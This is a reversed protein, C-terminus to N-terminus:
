VRRREFRGSRLLDRFDSQSLVTHLQGKRWVGWTVFQLHSHRNEDTERATRNKTTLKKKWVNHSSTLYFRTYFNIVRCYTLRVSRPKIRSKPCIALTYKHNITMNECATENNILRTQTDRISTIMNSFLFRAFHLHEDVFIQQLFSNVAALALQWLKCVPVVFIFHWCNYYAWYYKM